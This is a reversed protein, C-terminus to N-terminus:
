SQGGTSRTPQYPNVTATFFRSKVQTFTEQARQNAFVCLDDVDNAGDLKFKTFVGYRKAPPLSHDIRVYHDSCLYNAIAHVGQSQAQFVLDVLSTRWGLLGFVKAARRSKYFPKSGTGISLVHIDNRDYGIKIAEAIGVLTPNNAWLGGDVFTSDEILSYAPLYGPAASTATAIEWVPRKHDRNYEPLHPTKFVVTKGNLIDVTPICVRCMAGKLKVDEGFLAKLERVLAQNSYKPTFQLSVRRLSWPFIQRGKTKYLDLIQEIPVNFALALAIIGGTSTGVILDFYRHIPDPLHEQIYALYSAPYVGRIGGGDISLIRFTDGM